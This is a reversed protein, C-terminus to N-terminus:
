CASCPMWVRLSATSVRIMMGLSLSRCTTSFRVEICSAKWIASSTSRWPTWPMESMMVMGPRILTSKASTLDTMDEAPEARMPMPMPWPSPRAMSAARVAM